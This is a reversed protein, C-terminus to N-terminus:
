PVAVVLRERPTARAVARECGTATDNCKARSRLTHTTQGTKPGVRCAREAAAAAAAVVRAAVTVGPCSIGVTTKTRRSTANNNGEHVRMFTEFTRRNDCLVTTTTTWPLRGGGDGSVSAV